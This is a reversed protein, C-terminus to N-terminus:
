KKLIIQQTFRQQEATTLEIFYVGNSLGSIDLSNINSNDERYIARGLSDYIRVSKAGPSFDQNYTLSGQTPNPYVLWQSQNVSYDTDTLYVANNLPTEFSLTATDSLIQNNCSYETGNWIQFKVNVVLTYATNNLNLNPLVFDNEKTTIVSVTIPLYCISLTIVNNEISLSHQSYEFYHGNGVKTHINLDNSNEITTVTLQQITLAKSHQSLGLCILLLLIKKM